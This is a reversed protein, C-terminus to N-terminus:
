VDIYILKLVFKPKFLSLEFMDAWFSKRAHVGQPSSLYLFCDFVYGASRGLEHQFLRFSCACWFINTITQEVPSIHETGNRTNKIKQKIGLRESANKFCCQKRCKM